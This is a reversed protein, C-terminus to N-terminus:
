NKYKSDDSDSESERSDDKRHKRAHTSVSHSVSESSQVFSWADQVDSTNGIWVRVKHIRCSDDPM